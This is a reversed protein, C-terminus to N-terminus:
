HERGSGDRCDNPQNQLWNHVQPFEQLLTENFRGRTTRNGGMYYFTERGAAETWNYRPRPEHSRAGPPFVFLYYGVWGPSEERGIEVAGGHCLKYEVHKHYAQVPFTLTFVLLTPLLVFRM